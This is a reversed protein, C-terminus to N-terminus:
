RNEVDIELGGNHGNETDGFIARDSVRAACEQAKEFSSFVGVIGWQEYEGDYVIWIRM